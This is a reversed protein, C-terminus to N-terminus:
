RETDQVVNDSQMTRYLVVFPDPRTGDTGANERVQLPCGLGAATIYRSASCSIAHAEATLGVHKEDESGPDGIHSRRRGQDHPLVLLGEGGAVAKVEQSVNVSTMRVLGTAHAAEYSVQQRPPRARLLGSPVRYETLSGRGTHCPDAAMWSEAPGLPPYDFHRFFPLGCGHPTVGAAQPTVLWQSINDDAEPM